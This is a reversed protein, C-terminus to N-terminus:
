RCALRMAWTRLNPIHGALKHRSQSCEFHRKRYGSAEMEQGCALGIEPTWGGDRRARAPTAALTLTPTPSRWSASATSRLSVLTVSVFRSSAARHCKPAAGCPKQMGRGRAAFDSIDVAPYSPRGIPLRAVVPKSRQPLTPPLPLGYCGLGIGSAPIASHQAHRLSLSPTRILACRRLPLHQLFAVSLLAVWCHACTRLCATQPREM